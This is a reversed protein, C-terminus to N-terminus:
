RNFEGAKQTSRRVSQRYSKRLVAVASIREEEDTLPEQKITLTGFWSLPIILKVLLGICM